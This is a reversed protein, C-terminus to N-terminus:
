SEEKLVAQVPTPAQKRDKAGLGLLMGIFIMGTSLVTRTTVPEAMLTWSIAATVIPQLYIFLAVHSSKAHALAWFNLFYTLLTAGFVAFIMAFWLSHSVEPWTFKLWDPTALATLGISGYVFLWATTWIPDHKEIFKKSFSLFLGYSLCNLITLLDGIFTTNSLSFDEVKRLVLVGGMAMVFGLGKRVTFAEQGRLTVILLTFVPILTNLIASNTSTTYKLGVLFSGQNIITGLLAFGIMPFFFDKGGKPHKRGSFYAILLMLASSIVIRLSAWLLPPFSAVVIKSVIYNVGFLVQVAILAGIVLWRKPPIPAM